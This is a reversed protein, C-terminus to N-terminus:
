KHLEKYRNKLRNLYWIAKDIDELGNKYEHRWLYKLVNAAHPATAGLMNETMAEIAEICEIGSSNYHVPHNVPDYATEHPTDSTDYDKEDFMNRLHFEKAVDIM